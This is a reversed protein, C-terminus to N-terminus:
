AGLIVGDCHESSFIMKLKVLNEHLFRFDAFFRWHRAVFLLFAAGTSPGRPGRLALLVNDFDTFYLSSKNRHM